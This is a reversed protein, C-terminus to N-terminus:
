EPPLQGAVQPSDEVGSGGGRLMAYGLWSWALFYAVGVVVVRSESSRAGALSLIGVLASTVALGIAPAIALRRVRAYLIAIAPAVLIWASIAIGIYAPGLLLDRTWVFLGVPFLSAALVLGACGAAPPNVRAVLGLLVLECFALLAFSVPALVNQDLVVAALASL